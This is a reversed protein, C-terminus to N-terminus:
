HWPVSLALAKGLPIALISVGGRGSGSGLVGPGLAKGLPIALISVYGRRPGVAAIAGAWRKGWRSRSSQFERDRGLQSTIFREVNDPDLVVEVDLPLGESLAWAGAWALLRVM